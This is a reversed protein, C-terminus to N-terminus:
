DRPARRLFGTVLAELRPQASAATRLIDEVRAPHLNDPFCADTIVSIGLVRMGGHVAVLNEPVSSMGVTDAGIQRLFRYEAATELNPGAVAAYVFHRLRFGAAMAVEDALEIYARDYPESMDPFRPGLRDDNPGILPNDGMLNIHDIIVGVDGPAHKPNMGGVANSMILSHAGLAKMVRVPLTIEQMSYGEYYHARGQMVAVRRGELEGIILNGAHSIATSHPVHPIDAFPITAAHDVRDALEGLGTGLIVGFEIPEPARERVFAAAEQIRTHLDSM